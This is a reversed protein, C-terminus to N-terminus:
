KNQQIQTNGKTLKHMIDSVPQKKVGYDMGAAAVSLVLYKRTSSV